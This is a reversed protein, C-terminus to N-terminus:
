QGTQSRINQKIQMALVVGAALTLSGNVVHLVGTVVLGPNNESSMLLVLYVSFGLLVQVGTIIVLALAARRLAPHDEHQRLVFIGAVLIVLLVIMANLIHWLVGMANHRFAAGLGIQLAVLVPIGIGLPALRDWQSAVLKPGEQWSKSTLVAIVVVLSFFIPSLWAHVTPVSGLISEIVVAGLAIWGMISSYWIALGLTLLAVVYGAIRHAQELGPASVVPVLATAGPLSRIESTLSAGLAVVILTVVALLVACRHLWLSKM